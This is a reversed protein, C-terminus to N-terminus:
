WSERWKSCFIFYPQLMWRNLQQYSHLEITFNWQLLCLSWSISALYTFKLITVVCALLSYGNFWALCSIMPQCPWIRSDYVIELVHTSAFTVVSSLAWQKFGCIYLRCPRPGELDLELASTCHSIRGIPISSSSSWALATTFTSSENAIKPHHENAIKPRRTFSETHRSITITFWIQCRTATGARGVGTVYSAAAQRWRLHM